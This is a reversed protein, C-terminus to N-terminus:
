FRPIINHYKEIMQLFKDCYEDFSYVKNRLSAMPCDNHLGNWGGCLVCRYRGHDDYFPGPEEICTVFHNVMDSLKNRTLGDSKYYWYGPPDPVDAQVASYHETFPNSGKTVFDINAFNKEEWKLLAEFLVPYVNHGWSGILCHPPWICLPYRGNEELKRVYDTSRVQYGPNRSKWKGKQVDDFTIITFPEPPNGQSDAWFIPHAVDVLRHSDLTVHIDYLKEGVRDIFKALREMDKNAGEVYLSGKPDCFDNQPDIILLEIRKGM